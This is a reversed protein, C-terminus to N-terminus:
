VDCDASPWDDPVLRDGDHWNAILAGDYWDEGEYAAHDTILVQLQGHLMEVVDRTLDFLQKVALWDVDAAEADKDQANSFYPLSPQDLVLFRPVPRGLEAFYKHLALHAVLHYGVHNGGSGIQSLLLRGTPPKVAVNLEARDIRVLGSDSWELELRRAWTTMDDAMADLRDDVKQRLTAADLGQSVEDYAAVLRKVEADLRPRPDDGALDAIRLHEAIVGRLYARQEARRTEQRAADDADALAELRAETREIEIQLSGIAAELERDAASVDRAAGGIETIQRDLDHAAQALLSATVDAVDLPSGCVACNSPDGADDLAVSLGVRAAQVELADSHRRRDEELQRLSGRQERLQRMTLKLADLHRRLQQQSPENTPGADSPAQRAAPDAVLHRLSERATPADEGPRLDLAAAEELLAEDRATRDALTVQAVDLQRQANRLKRRLQDADRQAALTREDVAGLFYPFLTAFDKAVFEDGQRHFLHTQSSLEEQKQLCFLIAHSVSARLGDRAGHEEIEFGGLGLMRDLEARVSDSNANVAFASADAPLGIGARAEIMAVSSTDGKVAPRAILLLPQEHDGVLIAYWSVRDTIPGRPLHKGGRGFCYDIIDILASKGTRSRGSIVNLAGPRLNLVRRDGHHSYLAIAHLHM